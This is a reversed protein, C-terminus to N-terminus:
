IWGNALKEPGNSDFPSSTYQLNGIKMAPVKSSVRLHSTPFGLDCMMRFIM